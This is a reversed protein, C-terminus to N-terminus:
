EMLRETTPTRVKVLVYTLVGGGLAAYSQAADQQLGALLVRDVHDV